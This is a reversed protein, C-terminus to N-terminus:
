TGAFSLFPSCGFLPSSPPTPSPFPVAVATSPLPQKMRRLCEEVIKVVLRHDVTGSRRRRRRRRRRKKGGESGFQVGDSGLQDGDSGLQDGDSGSRDGDSLSSGDESSIVDSEGDTSWGRDM